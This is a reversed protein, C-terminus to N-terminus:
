GRRGLYAKDTGGKIVAGVLEILVYNAHSDAEGPLLTMDSCRIHITIENNDGGAFRVAAGIEKLEAGDIVNATNASHQTDANHYFHRNPTKDFRVGQNTKITHRGWYISRLAQAESLNTPGAGATAFLEPDPWFALEAATDRETGDVIPVKLIGLSMAVAIFMDRDELGNALDLLRKQDQDDLSLVYQNESASLRAVLLLSHPRAETKKLGLQVAGQVAIQHAKYRGITKM